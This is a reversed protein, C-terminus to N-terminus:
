NIMETFSAILVDSGDINQYATIEGYSGDRSEESWRTVLLLFVAFSLVVVAGIIKIINFLRKKRIFFDPSINELFEEAIEKPTGIENELQTIDAQPDHDLLEDISNDIDSLIRKKDKRSCVLCNKVRRIYKRREKNKISM